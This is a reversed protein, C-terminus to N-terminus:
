PRWKDNEFHTILCTKTREIMIKTMRFEDPSCDINDLYQTFANMVLKFDEDKESEKIALLLADRILKFCNKSEESLDIFEESDMDCLQDLKKQLFLLCGDELALITMNNIKGSNPFKCLLINEIVEDLLVNAWYYSDEISKEMELALRELYKGIKKRDM